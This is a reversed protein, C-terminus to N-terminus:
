LITQMEYCLISEWEEKKICTEPFRLIIFSLQVYFGLQSKWISRFM